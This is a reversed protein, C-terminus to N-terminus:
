LLKAGPAAYTSCRTFRGNRLQSIQLEALVQLSFGLFQDLVNSNNIRAIRRYLSEKDLSSKALFHRALPV